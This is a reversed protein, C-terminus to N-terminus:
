GASAANEDDIMRAGELVVHQWHTKITQVVPPHEEIFQFECRGWSLMRYCAEEAVLPGCEAHILVGFNLYVSGSQGSTLDVVEIKGAWNNLTLMQILDSLRLTSLYGLANKKPTPVKQSKRAAQPASEEQLERLKRAVVTRVEEIKIPKPLFTTHDAEWNAGFVHGSSAPGLVVMTPPGFRKVLSPFTRLFAPGPSDPDIVLLDFEEGPLTELNGILTVQCHPIASLALEFWEAESEPWMALGVKM